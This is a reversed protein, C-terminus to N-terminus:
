VSGFGDGRLLDLIFTGQVTSSKRQLSLYQANVQEVIFKYKGAYSKDVLSDDEKNYVLHEFAKKSKIFVQIGLFGLHMVRTLVELSIFGSLFEYIYTFFSDDARYGIIVDFSSDDVAFKKTFEIARDYSANGSKKNESLKVCYNFLLSLWCKIDLRTLNLVELDSLDLTYSHVYRKPGLYYDTWAWKKTM